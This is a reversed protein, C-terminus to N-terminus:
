SGTLKIQVREIKYDYKDSIGSQLDKIREEGVVQSAKEFTPYILGANLLGIYRNNEGKMISIVYMM